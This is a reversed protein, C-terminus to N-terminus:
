EIPKIFSDSDVLYQANAAIEDSSALGAKVEIFKGSRAGTTVKRASFLDRRKIFIVRDMGLDVVSERPVWLSETPKLKIRARVLQGIFLKKDKVYIRIKVFNEGQNIFPEIFDVFADAFSGDGIDLQLKDGKSVRQVQSSALNLEIRLDSTNVLKVIIQGASVYDGARVLNKSGVNVIGGASSSSANMEDMLKASTGLKTVNVKIEPPASSIVYGSYPSFIGTLLTVDKRKVLDSIQSTTLGFLELKRRAAEILVHNSSDNELLYLLERQATVLEPSYIEAVKEGKRVSQFEYKLSMGEIRGAVRSSISYINRTDYTVVGVADTFIPVSRYEPRITKVSSAIAQNPSKLLTSLERSITAEDGVSTKRVLNMGCVPCAGPKTSNVTPHMPCTYYEELASDNSKSCSIFLLLLFLMSSYAISGKLNRKM